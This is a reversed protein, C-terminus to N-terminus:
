EIGELVATDPPLLSLGEAPYLQSFRCHDQCWQAAVPSLWSTLRLMTQHHKRLDWHLIPELHAVRNRLERLAQLPGSFDKRRLGKGDAKKGIDHLVTQWLDEYEKGLMSTWYGFTLAAVMRAPTGLKRGQTLDHKAKRLMEPQKPNLQYEELDYWPPGAYESMVLYIRNRLAVELTHMSIHLCESLCANLTYLKIARTRDNKAWKLYTLFRDSSLIDEIGLYENSIPAGDGQDPPGAENGPRSIDM